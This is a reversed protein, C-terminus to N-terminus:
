RPTRRAKAWSAFLYGLGSVGLIGAIIGLWILGGEMDDESRAQVPFAVSRTRKLETDPGVSNAFHTAVRRPYCLPLHPNDRPPASRVM